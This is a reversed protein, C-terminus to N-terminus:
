LHSHGRGQALERAAGLGHLGFARVHGRKEGVEVPAIGADPLADAVLRALDPAEDVDEDVALVDAEELVEVGRHLRAVLERDDRGDRSAASRPAHIADRRACAPQEVPGVAGPSPGSTEGETSSSIPLVGSTSIWRTRSPTGGPTRRNALISPKLGPPETFSRGARLIIWSPMRWPRSTGPLVMRSEVEPLVPIASAM